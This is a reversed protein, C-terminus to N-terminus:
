PVSAILGAEYCPKPDFGFRKEFIAEVRPKMARKGWYELAWANAKKDEPTPSKEITNEEKMWDVQWEPYTYVGNVKGAMAGVFLNDDIYLKKKDLLTAMFKARRLIPSDGATEEYVDAMIRVREFDLDQPTSRLQEKLRDIRDKDAKIHMEPQTMTATSM